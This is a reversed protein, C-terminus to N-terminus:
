NHTGNNNNNILLIRIENKISSNISAEGGLWPTRAKKVGIIPKIEKAYM